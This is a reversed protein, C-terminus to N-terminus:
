LDWYNPTVKVSSVSGTFSIVNQGPSLTAFESTSSTVINNKNNGNEDYCNMEECDIIIPLTISSISFVTGNVTVTGGSSDGYVKLIPRANYATPNNVTAGSISVTQLTQGDDRYRQPKCTFDITAEGSRGLSNEVDFPGAFYAKRFHTADFDDRLVCYGKPQYLWAAIATLDTPVSDATGTLTAIHYEQQVDNWADQVHVIDGNRGPVSYVDMKRQPKQYNPYATVFLNFSASSRGDFSINGTLSM